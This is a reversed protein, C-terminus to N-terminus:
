YNITIKDSSSIDIVEYDNVFGVLYVLYDEEIIQSSTGNYYNINVIQLHNKITNDNLYYYFTAVVLVM